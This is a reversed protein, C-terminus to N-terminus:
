LSEDWMGRGPKSDTRTATAALEIRARIRAAFSRGLTADALHSQQSSHSSSSPSKMSIQMQIGSGLGVVAGVAVSVGLGGVAVLVGRGVLVGFGGVAVLVGVRLPCTAGASELM